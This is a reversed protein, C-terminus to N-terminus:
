PQGGGIVEFKAGDLLFGTLGEAVTGQATKIHGPTVYDEPRTADLGIWNRGDWVEVWAHYLFSDGTYVLGSVFRTPIGAAKTLTGLLIAYDRCVGVKTDLIENADRLVGIGADARMIQYVHTRLKQAAPITRTESGVISKALEKFRETQSPVRIDPAVWSPKTRASEKISTQAQANKVPKVWLVFNEGEKVARQSPDVPLKSLDAGTVRYRHSPASLDVRGKVPVTSAIALDGPGSANPTLKTAIEKPEPRYEMGLPGTGKVLEGKTNFYLDTKARPDDVVVHTAEIQGQSTTIKTQDKVTITVKQLALAEPAFVYADLTQGPVPKGSTVLETVPDDLIRAGTPVPIEKTTRDGDTVMTAIIKDAMYDATVENKRGSSNTIQRSRVLRGQRDVWSWSQVTIQLSQGLMSSDFLFNSKRLTLAENEPDTESQYHIYGVKTGQVYFGFWAEDAAALAAIFLLAVLAVLKKTCM